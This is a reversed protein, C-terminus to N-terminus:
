EEEEQKEEERAECLVVDIFMYNKSSVFAIKSTNNM